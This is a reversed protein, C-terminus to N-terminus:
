SDKDLDYFAYVVNMFRIDNMSVYLALVYQQFLFLVLPKSTFYPIEPETFRYFLGCLGM